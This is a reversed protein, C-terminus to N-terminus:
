KPKFRRSTHFKAIEKEIETDNSNQVTFQKMDSRIAVIECDFCYRGTSIAKGCTECKLFHNGSNHLIELREEKLYYKILATPLELASCIEAASAEPFEYLYAKIRKFDREM